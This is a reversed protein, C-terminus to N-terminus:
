ALTDSSHARNAATATSFGKAQDRWGSEASSIRVGPGSLRM